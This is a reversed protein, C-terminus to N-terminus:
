CTSELVSIHQLISGVNDKQVSYSPNRECCMSCTVDRYISNLTKIKDPMNIMVKRLPQLAAKIFVYHGKQNVSCNTFTKICIQDMHNPAYTPSPTKRKKLTVCHYKACEELNDFNGVSSAWHLAIESLHAMARNQPSKACIGPPSSTSIQVKGQFEGDWCINCKCSSSLMSSDMAVRLLIEQVILVHNRKLLSYYKELKGCNTAVLCDGFNVFTERKITEEPSNHKHAPFFSSGRSRVYLGNEEMLLLGSVVASAFRHVKEKVNKEQTCLIDDKEALKDDESGSCKVGNCNPPKQSEAAAAASSSSEQQESPSNYDQFQICLPSRTKFLSNYVSEINEFYAGQNKELEGKLYLSTQNESISNRVVDEIRNCGKSTEPTKQDGYGSLVCYLEEMSCKFEKEEKTWSLTVELIEDFPCKEKEQQCCDLFYVCCCLDRVFDSNTEKGVMKCTREVSLKVTWKKLSLSGDDADDIFTKAVNVCDLPSDKIKYNYSEYLSLERLTELLIVKRKCPGKSFDTMAKNTGGHFKQLDRLTGLITDTQSTINM